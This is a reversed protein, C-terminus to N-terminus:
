AERRDIRYNVYNNEMEKKRMVRGFFRAKPIRTKYILYRILHSAKLVIENSKKSGMCHTANKGLTM